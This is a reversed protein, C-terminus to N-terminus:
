VKVVEHDIKQFLISPERLINGAKPPTLASDWNLKKLELDFLGAIKEATFPLFPAFSVGLFHIAQLCLALTVRTTELDTKRTVWPAKEDAYKNCGRAFDMLLELAQKFSFEELLTTLERHVNEFQALFRRDVDTLKSADYAPIQPGEYKLTFSVIRHVFNGVINALESNNRQILDEPKYVTRAREPAIATLYYRLVDPNSGQALYDEIWVATGRSKSIKETERDPFQINLFNNVIV